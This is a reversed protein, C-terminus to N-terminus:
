KSFSSVSDAIPPYSCSVPKPGENPLHVLTGKAFKLRKLLEDKFDQYIQEKETNPHRERLGKDVGEKAIGLRKTLEKNTLEVLEEYTPRKLPNPM